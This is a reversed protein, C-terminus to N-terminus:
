SNNLFDAMETILSRISHNDEAEPEYATSSTVVEANVLKKWLIFATATPNSVRLDFKEIFEIFLKRQTSSVLFFAPSVKKGSTGIKLRIRAPWGEKYIFVTPDQALRLDPEGIIYSDGLVDHAIQNVNLLKEFVSNRIIKDEHDQTYSGDRLNIKREVDLGQLAELDGEPRINVSRFGHVMNTLNYFGYMWKILVSEVSRAENNTEFRGIVRKGYFDQQKLSKIMEVKASEQIDNEHADIRLGQGKGVYFVKDNRTDFLIYVYHEM